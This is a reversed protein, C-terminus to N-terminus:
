AHLQVFCEPFELRVDSHLSFCLLNLPQYLGVPLFGSSVVCPLTESVLKSDTIAPDHFYDGWAM